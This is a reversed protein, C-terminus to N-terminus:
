STKPALVRRNPRNARLARIQSSYIRLVVFLSMLLLFNTALVYLNVTFYSIIRKQLGCQYNWDYPLLSATRALYQEVPCQWQQGSNAVRVCIRESVMQYAYDSTYTENFYYLRLFFPNIQSSARSNPTATKQHLEFLLTAGPPILYGNFLGFAHLLLAIKTDHTSYIFVKRRLDQGSIHKRINGNIEKLLPGIRLTQLM